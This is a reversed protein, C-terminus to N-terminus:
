VEDKDNLEKELLALLDKSYEERGQALAAVMTAVIKRSRKSKSSFTAM